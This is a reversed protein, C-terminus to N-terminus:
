TIIMHQPCFFLKAQTLSVIIRIRNTIDEHLYCSSLYLTCMTCVFISSSPKGRVITRDKQFFCLFFKPFPACHIMYVFANIESRDNTMTAKKVDVYKIALLFLHIGRYYSLSTIKERPLFFRIQLFEQLIRANMHLTRCEIKQRPM